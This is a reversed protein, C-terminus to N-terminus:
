IGVMDSRSRLYSLISPCGNKSFRIDGPQRGLPTYDRSVM